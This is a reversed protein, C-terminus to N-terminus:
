GAVLVIFFPRIQPSWCPFIGSEDWLKNMGIAWTLKLKSLEEISRTQFAWKTRTGSDVTLGKGWTHIIALRLCGAFSSLNRTFTSIWISIVCYEEPNTPSGMWGTSRVSYIKLIGTSWGDANSFMHTHTYIYYVCVDIFDINLGSWDMNLGGLILSTSWSKTGASFVRSSLVVRTFTSRSSAISIPVVRYPPKGFLPTGWSPHNIEPFDLRYISSKPTGRNWSVEM